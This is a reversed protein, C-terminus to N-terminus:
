PLTEAELRPAEACTCQGGLGETHGRLPPWGCGCEGLPRQISAEAEPRAAKQKWGGWASAPQVTEAELLPHWLSGKM